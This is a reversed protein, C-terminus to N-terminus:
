LSNSKRPNGQIREDSDLSKLPKCPNKTACIKEREGERSFGSLSRESQGIRFAPNTMVIFKARRRIKRLLNNARIANATTPSGGSDHGAKTGAM